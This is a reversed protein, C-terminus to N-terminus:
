PSSPSPNGEIIDSATAGVVVSHQSRLIPGLSNVTLASVSVQIINGGIDAGTGSVQSLTGGNPSYYTVTVSNANQILGFSYNKVTNQVTCTVTSCGTGATATVGVRVGERVAEQITAQAFISWAVDMVLFVLALFPVLVLGFEVLATGRERGRAPLRSPGERYISTGPMFLIM